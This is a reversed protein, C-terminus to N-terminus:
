HITGSWLEAGKLKGEGRAVPSNQRPSDWYSATTNDWYLEGVRGYREKEQEKFRKTGGDQIPYVYM